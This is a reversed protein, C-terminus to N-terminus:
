CEKNRREVTSAAELVSGGEGSRTMRFKAQGSSRDLIWFGSTVELAEVRCTPCDLLRRCDFNKRPVSYHIGQDLWLIVITGPVACYSHIFGYSSLLPYVDRIKDNDSKIPCDLLRRCDFNKRPVSYHIGQDLWLIVITGPVACYSHIFGYSSLLPDVDRIKDNDSKILCDMLRRCDFNKRPVNYHIGQDLWLIVITGPVACYSHILGSSSLLPGLGRAKDNDSKIPCNMLRQCDFNKRPVSYHIGQDLWLIVITGPVACYSHIFGYSSLLPDVDRIKDNDSKILCDM